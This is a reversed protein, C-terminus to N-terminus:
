RGEELEGFTLVHWCCPLSAAPGPLRGARKSQQGSPLQSGWACPPHFGTVLLGSSPDSKCGRGVTEAKPNLDQEM